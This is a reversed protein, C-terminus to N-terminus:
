NRTFLSYIGFVVMWISQPYATFREMGGISIGLYTKSEFLVLAILGVFGSLCTYFRLSTPLRRLGFGLCIMGLNGFIFALAAGTIHLLSVTNEPFIGVLLTGFGALAMFNFGMLSLRDVFFRRQLIVAGIIMTVGLVIFSTNMLSHLPSCVLTHRYLGCHTNGLDSITNHVWSYPNNKAWKTAVILQVIYYQASAIWLSAGITRYPYHATRMGLGVMRGYSYKSPRKKIGNIKVTPDIM